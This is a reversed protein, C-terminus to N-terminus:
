AACTSHERHVMTVEMACRRTDKCRGQDRTSLELDIHGGTGYVDLVPFSGHSATHLSESSIGRVKFTQVFLRHVNTCVPRPLQLCHPRHSCAQSTGSSGVYSQFISCRSVERSFAIVGWELVRAQFIGHISSVPPSCGSM